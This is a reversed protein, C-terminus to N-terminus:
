GGYSRGGMKTNDQNQLDYITYLRITLHSSQQKYSTLQLSNTQELEWKNTRHLPNLTQMTQISNGHRISSCSTDACYLRCYWCLMSPDSCFPSPPPSLPCIIITVWERTVPIRSGHIFLGPWYVSIISPGRVIVESLVASRTLIQQPHWKHTDVFYM